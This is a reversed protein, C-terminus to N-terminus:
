ILMYKNNEAFIGVLYVDNNLQNFENYNSFHSTKNKDKFEFAVFNELNISIKQELQTEIEKKNRDTEVKEVDKKIPLNSRKTLKLDIYSINKQDVKVYENSFIVRDDEAAHDKKVEQASAKNSNKQTNKGNITSQKPKNKEPKYHFLRGLFGNHEGEDGEEDNHSFINFFSNKKNKNKEKINKEVVISLAEGTVSSRLASIDKKKTEGDELKAQEKERKERVEEFSQIMAAISKIKMDKYIKRAKNGRWIKQIIAASSHELEVMMHGFKNVYRKLEKAAEKLENEVKEKTQNLEVITEQLMKSHKIAEYLESAKEGVLSEMEMLKEEAKQKLSSLMDLSKQVVELKSLYFLAEEAKKNIEEKLEQMELRIKEETEQIIRRAEQALKEAEEAISDVVKRVAAIVEPEKVIIARNGAIGFNKLVKSIFYNDAVIEVALAVNNIQSNIAGEAADALLYLFALLELKNKDTAMPVYRELFGLLAMRYTAAVALEISNTFFEDLSQAIQRIYRVEFNGEREVARAIFHEHMREIIAGLRFLQETVAVAKIANENIADARDGIIVKTITTGGKALGAILSPVLMSINSMMKDFNTQRFNSRGPNFYLILATVFSLFIVVDTIIIPSWQYITKQPSNLIDNYEEDSKQHYHLYASLLALIAFPFIQAELPYNKNNKKTM